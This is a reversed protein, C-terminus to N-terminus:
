NSKVFAIVRANMEAADKMNLPVVVFFILCNAPLEDLVMNEIQYRGAELMVRHTEFNKSIGRDLSFNDIGIGRVNRENVLFEALEPSFGPFHM